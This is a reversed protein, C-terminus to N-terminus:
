FQEQKVVGSLYIEVYAENMDRIDVLERHVGLYKM